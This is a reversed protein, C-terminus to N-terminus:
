GSWAVAGGILALWLVLWRVDFRVPNIRNAFDDPTNLTVVEAM